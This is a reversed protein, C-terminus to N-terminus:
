LVNDLTQCYSKLRWQDYDSHASFLRLTSQDSMDVAIQYERASYDSDHGKHTSGSSLQLILRLTRGKRATGLASPPM